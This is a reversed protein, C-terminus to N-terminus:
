SATAADSKAPKGKGNGSADAPAKEPAPFAAEFARGILQSAEMLGLDDMLDGAEDESKIGPVGALFLARLRRMDDPAKQLADVAQMLTEGAADQYRCMANTSFRIIREEGNVTFAVAGRMSNSM